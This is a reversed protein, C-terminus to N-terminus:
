PQVCLAESPNGVDKVSSEEISLVHALLADECRSPHGCDSREFNCTTRLINSGRDLLTQRPPIHNELCALLDAALKSGPHAGLSLAGYGM